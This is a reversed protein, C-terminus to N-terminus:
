TAHESPKAAVLEIGPHMFAIRRARFLSGLAQKFAKKSVGFRQRVEDPSSDDDFNLRGGASELERMIEDTLPAVRAYGCADLRLDIKGDDRVTRVFGNLQQGVALPSSLDTRYLLGLHAHEVIASYGLPSEGVVLLSVARGDAYQPPTTSLHDVLRGSAIIRDSKPDICVGVIVRKGVEVPAAQEGFPLLLDKALGWDLFAGTQAHIDKVKLWAFEGVVAFPTETTAVLRDESDRYIFVDLKQKVRLDSKVYRGPLLIEGLQEGDLYVGSATERVVSLLNRKGLNAM